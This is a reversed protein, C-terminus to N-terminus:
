QSLWAARAWWRCTREGEVASQCEPLHELEHQHHREKYRASSCAAGGFGTGGGGVEARRWRGQLRGTCSGTRVDVARGLGSGGNNTAPDNGQREVWNATYNIGNEAPRSAPPTSLPPVGRRRAHPPRRRPPAGSALALVSGAPQKAGLAPALSSLPECSGTKGVQM